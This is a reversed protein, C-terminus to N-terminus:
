WRRGELNAGSVESDLDGGAGSLLLKDASFRDFMGETFRGGISMAPEHPITEGSSDLIPSGKAM